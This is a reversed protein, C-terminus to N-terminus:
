RNTITRGISLRIWRVPAQHAEKQGLLSGSTATSINMSMSM